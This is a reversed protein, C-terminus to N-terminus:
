PSGAHRRVLEPITLVDDKSVCERVGIEAAAVRTEDTLYASFLIVAQDPDEALIQEAAQLGTLGPMRQDLVVVDPRYERWLRVAEVGDAGEAAVETGRSSELAARLLLRMDEEDDVILARALESPIACHHSLSL